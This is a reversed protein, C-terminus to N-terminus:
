LIKLIKFNLFLGSLLHEIIYVLCFIYISIINNKNPKKYNSSNHLSPTSTM